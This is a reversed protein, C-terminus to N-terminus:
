NTDTIYFIITHNLSILHPLLTLKISATFTPAPYLFKPYIAIFSYTAKNIKDSCKFLLCTKGTWTLGWAPFLGTERVVWRDEVLHSIAINKSSHYSGMEEMLLQGMLDLPWRRPIGSKALRSFEEYLEVLEEPVYNTMLLAWHAHRLLLHLRSPLVWCTPEWFRHPTAKWDSLLTYLHLYWSFLGPVDLAACSIDLGKEPAVIVEPMTMESPEIVITPGTSTSPGAVATPESVDIVHIPEPVPVPEPEPM